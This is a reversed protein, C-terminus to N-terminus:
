LLAIARLSLTGLCCVNFLMYRGARALSIQWRFGKLKAAAKADM